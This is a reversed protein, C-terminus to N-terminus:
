ASVNLIHVVNRKNEGELANHILHQKCETNLKPEQFTGIGVYKKTKTLEHVM